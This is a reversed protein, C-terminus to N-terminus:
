KAIGFITIIVYCTSFDIKKNICGDNADGYGCSSFHFSKTDTSLIMAICQMKFLKGTVTQFEKVITSIISNAIKSSQQQATATDYTYNELLGRVQEETIDEL